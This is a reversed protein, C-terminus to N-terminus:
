SAMNTRALSQWSNCRSLVDAPAGGHSLSGPVLRDIRIIEAGLDALIMCGYPAPGIGAFEIM